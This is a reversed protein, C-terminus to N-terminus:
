VELEMGEASVFCDLPKGTRQIERRTRAQLRDLEDDTRDPDHHFLGLRKVGASLALKVTDTITCHGWGCTRRYEVETYQADHLLLDAGRCFDVYDRRTLGGEHRFRLENDPIFVLSRGNETLKFGYGGNPHNLRISSCELGAQHGNLGQACNGQACDCGFRIRAKLLNFNVPFYPPEMQRRLDRKLYHLPVPGGCINLTFESRYAPEFFPFGCLHDWHAHTMLFHLEGSHKEEILQQGLRRLGSGADLILIQGSQSRVEM